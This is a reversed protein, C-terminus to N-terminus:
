YQLGFLLEGLDPQWQFDALKVRNNLVMVGDEQLLGTQLLAQESGKPFAIQGNSRLVKYWAVTRNQPVFGLSKGVLRARGPLGALDAIQGYSAVKGNPIHDITAWIKEYSKSTHSMCHKGRAISM